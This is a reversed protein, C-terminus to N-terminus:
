LSEPQFHPSVPPGLNSGQGGYCGYYLYSLRSGWSQREPGQEFCRALSLEFILLTLQEGSSAPEIGPEGTAAGLQRYSWGWRIQCWVSIGTPLVDICILSFSAFAVQSMDADSAQVTGAQGHM